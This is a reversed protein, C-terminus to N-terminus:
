CIIRGDLQRRDHGEVQLTRLSFFPTGDWHRRLRIELTGNPQNNAKGFALSINADTVFPRSLHCLPFPFNEIWCWASRGRCSMVAVDEGIVMIANQHGQNFKRLRWRYQKAIFGSSFRKWKLCHRCQRLFCCRFPPNQRFGLPAVWQKQM